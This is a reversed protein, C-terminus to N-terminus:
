GSEPTFNREFSLEVFARGLANVDAKILLMGSQARLAGFAM